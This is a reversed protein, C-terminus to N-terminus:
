FVGDKGHDSGHEVPNCMIQANTVSIHEGYFLDTKDSAIQADTCTQAMATFTQIVDDV